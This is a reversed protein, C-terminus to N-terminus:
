KGFIIDDSLENADSGLFPFHTALTKGAIEIASILGDVVQGQIFHNHMTNSLQDWFENGVKEHIGYDGIVAYKRDVFALYIMVGNRAETKDMGLEGFLFAARDLPADKTTDEIFVRLEGSTMREARGVAEKVRLRDAESIAQLAKL